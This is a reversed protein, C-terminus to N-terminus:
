HTANVTEPEAEFLLSCCTVAGEAKQLESVDVTTVPIGARLLREQTRPFCSPYILGKGVRLTNAAHPEEPDIEIIRYGAFDARNIWGPHILLTNDAVLTVASKLHLCGNMAIPRVTYGYESVLSTLQEIGSANTRASQGVFITRGIRMVDGGELTGPPEISRLPRHEVLRAAVSAGEPRRSETGPRTMVVVEDLVLAVDEVFVADPLDDEAPLTLVHCGLRALAQQYQLHQTRALAVDIEVRPVFSLECGGISPSVERTIAILM